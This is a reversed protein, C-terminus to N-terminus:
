SSKNKRYMLWLLLPAVILTIAAIAAILIATINPPEAIATAESQEVLSSETTRDTTATNNEATETCIFTSQSTNTTASTKQGYDTKKTTPSYIVAGSPTVISDATLEITTSDTSTVCKSLMLWFAAMDTNDTKHGIDTEASVESTYKQTAKQTHCGAIVCVIALTVFILLIIDIIDRLRM